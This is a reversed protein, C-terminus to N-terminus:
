SNEIYELYIKEAQSIYTKYFTKDKSGDKCGGCILVARRKPDFAFFIRYPRGQAQVRLEKLNTVKKTNTLTDVTPRGLKPGYEKLLEVSSRIQIKTFDDLDLYWRGYEDTAVVEWSM